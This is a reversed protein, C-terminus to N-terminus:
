KEEKIKSRVFILAVGLVAACVGGLFLSWGLVSDNRQVSLGLVVTLLGGFILVWIVVHLWRVYRANM